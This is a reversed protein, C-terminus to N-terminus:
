VLEVSALADGEELKMIRVGQTARGLISISGLETRIVVGKKSVAIIEKDEDSTVYASVLSGTKATIKATMVGKGSRKQIKYAGLETRKGYGHEMVALLRLSKSEKGSPVVDAGVVKAKKDLRIGIVGAASRGMPRVDKEKFRIAQGDSTTMIIEDSGSSTMVWKLEDDGKLKIAIMGSRRVQSFEDIEVKKIIGGATAMVLYKASM